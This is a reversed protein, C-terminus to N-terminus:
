PAQPLVGSGTVAVWMRRIVTKSVTTDSQTSLDDRSADIAYKGNCPEAGRSKNCKMNRFGCVLCYNVAWMQMGRCSHRIFVRGRLM